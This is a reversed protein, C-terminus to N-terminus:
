SLYFRSNVMIVVRRNRNMSGFTLVYLNRSCTINVGRIKFGIIEEFWISSHYMKLLM